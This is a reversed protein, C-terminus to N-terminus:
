INLKSLNLNLPMISIISGRKEYKAIEEEIESDITDDMFKYKNSSRGRKPSGMSELEDENNKKELRHKIHMVASHTTPYLYQYDFNQDFKYKAFM